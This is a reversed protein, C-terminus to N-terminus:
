GGRGNGVVSLGSCQGKAGEIGWNVFCDSGFVQAIGGHRIEDSVGGVRGAGVDEMVLVREFEGADSGVAPRHRWVVRRMVRGDHCDKSLFSLQVPRCQALQPPLFRHLPDLLLLLRDFFPLLRLLINALPLLPKPLPRNPSQKPALPLFLPLPSATSVPDIMQLIQLLRPSPLLSSELCHHPTYRTTQATTTPKTPTVIHFASSGKPPYKD